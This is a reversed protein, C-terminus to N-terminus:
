NSYESKLNCAVNLKKRSSCTISNVVSEGM